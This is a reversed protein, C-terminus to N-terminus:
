GSSSDKGGEAQPTEDTIRVVREVDRPRYGAGIAALAVRERSALRRSRLWAKVVAAVLAGLASWVWPEM